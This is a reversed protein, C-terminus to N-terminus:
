KDISCRIVEQSAEKLKEDSINEGSSEAVQKLLSNKNYKFICDWTQKEGNDKSLGSLSFKTEPVPILDKEYNWNISDLNTYKEGSIYDLDQIKYINELSSNFYGVANLMDGRAIKNEIDIDFTYSFENISKRDSSVLEGVVGKYTYTWISKGDEERYDKEAWLLDNDKMPKGNVDFRVLDIDEIIDLKPEGKGKVMELLPNSGSESTKSQSNNANKPTFRIGAVIGAILILGVIAITTTTKNNKM